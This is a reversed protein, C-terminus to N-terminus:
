LNRGLSLFFGWILWKKHAKKKIKKNKRLTKIDIDFNVKEAKHSGEGKETAKQIKKENQKLQKQLREVKQEKEQLQKQQELEQLQTETERISKELEEITQNLAEEKSTTKAPTSTALKAREAVQLPPALAYDKEEKVEKTKNRESKRLANDASM